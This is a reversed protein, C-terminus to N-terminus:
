TTQQLSYATFTVNRQPNENSPIQSRQRPETTTLSPNPDTTSPVSTTNPSYCRTIFAHIYSRLSLCLIGLIAVTCVVPTIILYWHTRQEERLSAQQIHLLSDVEFTQSPVMTKSRIEDLQAFADPTIQELLPIEHNAVVDIKDPIYIQSTQLNVQATGQLEPLTRVENTTISCQSANFILVADSLLETRTTWTNDKLCQITIQRQELLHYLWHEMNSSPQLEIISSYIEGVYDTMLSLRFISLPNVRSYNVIYIAM